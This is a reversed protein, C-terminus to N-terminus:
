LALNISTIQLTCRSAPSIEGTLVAATLATSGRIRKLLRLLRHRGKGPESEAAVGFDKGTHTAWTKDDNDSVNVITVTEPHRHPSRGVVRASSKKKLRPQTTLCRLTSVAAASSDLTMTTKDPRACTSQELDHVWLGDALVRLDGVAPPRDPTPPGM